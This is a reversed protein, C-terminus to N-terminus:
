PKKKEESTVPKQLRQIAQAALTYNPDVTLVSRYAKLAETTRHQAEQLVGIQYPISPDNPQAQAIKIYTAIAADRNADTKAYLSQNQAYLRLLDTNKENKEVVRRLFDLYAVQRKQMEFVEGISVLAGVDIKAPNSVVLSELFDTVAEPKNQRNRLEVLRNRAATNVTDNRLITEYLLAAEDDRKKREYFQALALVARNDGVKATDRLTKLTTEADSAKGNKEQMDALAYRYEPNTPESEIAKEIEDLAEALRGRSGFLTAAGLKYIARAPDNSQPMIARLQVLAEDDRKLKQLYQALLWRASIENPNLAVRNQLVTVAEATKATRDLLNALAFYATPTIPDAQIATRYTAVAQANQDSQEMAQAMGVLAASNKPEKEVIRGYIRLADAWQASAAYLSGLEMQTTIDSPNLAVLMEWERFALARKSKDATSQIYLIGALRRRAAFDQPTDALIARYIERAADLGGRREAIYGLGMRAPAFTPTLNLAARFYREAEPIRADSQVFVVLGLSTLYQPNKPNTLVARRFRAEAQRYRDAPAVTTDENILRGVEYQLPANDLDADARKILLPRIADRRNLKDALLVLNAFLRANNPAFEIADRYADFAEPLLGLQAAFDGRLLLANGDSPYANAYERAADLAAQKKGMNGLSYVLLAYNRRDELPSGNKRNVTRLLNQLLPIADDFQKLGIYAFALNAQTPRHSPELALASKAAVAAAKFQKLKLYISVLSQQYPAYKPALAAAQQLYVAAHSLDGARLRLLALNNWAVTTAPYKQLLSQYARESDAYRKQQTLLAARDFDAKAAPTQASCPSVFALAGIFVVLPSIKKM